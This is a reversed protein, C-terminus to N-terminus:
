GEFLHVVMGSRLKPEFWTSKPPMVQGADAVAMVEEIRVPHLAFAVAHGGSAVRRELEERGRSGGVFEIRPDTRPDGIWLVPQLLRETLISVDLSRVLDGEPIIEPRATLRYWRGAVHMSFTRPRTRREAGALPEVDFGARRVLDLLETLGLGRLDRVLRNYDLIRLEAAPFHVALFSDWPGARGRHKALDAYAAARHHGDAIYDHPLEGFLAEIRRVTEPDREVWLTHRVGDPATFDASPERSAAAEAAERLGVNERHALFIPGVHAGIAEAHRVRDLVKDPKTHEHRRIRGERYDEIAALGVIGTQARDDKELRYVYYAPGADRVLWGREIMGRFNDRAQAYVREDYPEVGPELDIEAKEVHLFAYPDGRALERAEVSDLVDYPYSPIKSALDPRPRTGRFPRVIM